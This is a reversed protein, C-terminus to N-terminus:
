NNKGNHMHVVNKIWEKTLPCNPEEKSRAIEFLTKFLSLHGELMILCRESIHGPTTFRPGSTSSNGTKKSAVFIIKLTTKCTALLLM